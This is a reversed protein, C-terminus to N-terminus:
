DQNRFGAQTSHCNEQWEKESMSLTKKIRAVTALIMRSRSEETEIEGFIDPTVSLPKCLVIHLYDVDGKVSQLRSLYPMTAPAVMNDRDLYEVWGTYPQSYGQSPDERRDRVPYYPGFQAFTVFMPYIFGKGCPNYNVWANEHYEYRSM